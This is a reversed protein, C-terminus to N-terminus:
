SARESGSTNPRAIPVRGSATSGAFISSSSDRADFYKQQKSSIHCIRHGLDVLLAALLELPFLVIFVRMAVRLIRALHPDAKLGENHGGFFRLLKTTAYLPQTSVLGRPSSTTAQITNM